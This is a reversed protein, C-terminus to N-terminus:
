QWLPIVTIRREERLEEDPVSGGTYMKLKGDVVELLVNHEKIKNLLDKM